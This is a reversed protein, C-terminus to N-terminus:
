FRIKNEAEGTAKEIYLDKRTEFAAALFVVSDQEVFRSYVNVPFETVDKLIAGFITMEGNETVVKSKTGSQLTKIWADLTKEYIVEPIVVSIAPLLSNGIQLSDEM